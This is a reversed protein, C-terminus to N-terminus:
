LIDEPNFGNITPFPEPRAGGPRWSLKFAEGGDRWTNFAKITLAAIEVRDTGGNTVPKRQILNKRLALIPDGETLGSGDRLKDFFVDADEDDVYAFLFHLTGALTARMNRLQQYVTNGIQVSHAISEQHKKGLKILDGETPNAKSRAFTGATAYTYAYRVVFATENYYRFGALKFEDSLLRKANKDMTSQVEDDLGTILVCELTFGLEAAAKLRNQGDLLVGKKSFRIPDGNFKWEGSLMMAKYQRVHQAKFGRNHTNMEALIYAAEEPTIRVRRVKVEKTIFKARKNSLAQTPM